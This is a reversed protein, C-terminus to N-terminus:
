MQLLRVVASNPQTRQRVFETQDLVIAIPEIASSGLDSSPAGAAAPLVSARPAGLPRTARSSRSSRSSGSRIFKLQVMRGSASGLLYSGRIGLPADWPLSVGFRRRQEKLDAAVNEALGRRRHRRRAAPGLDHPVRHLGPWMPRPKM